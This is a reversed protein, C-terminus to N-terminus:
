KKRYEVYIYYNQLDNSLNILNLIFILLLWFIENKDYQRHWLNYFQNEFFKLNYKYITLIVPGLISFIDYDVNITQFLQSTPAKLEEESIRIM